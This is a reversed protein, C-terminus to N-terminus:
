WQFGHRTNYQAAQSIPQTYGWLRGGLEMHATVTAADFPVTAWFRLTHNTPIKWFVPANSGWPFRNETWNPIEWLGEGPINNAAPIIGKPGDVKGSSLRLKWSINQAFRANFPGPKIWDDPTGEIAYWQWCGRVIGIRGQPVYLRAIEYHSQGFAGNPVWNYVKADEFYFQGQTDRTPDSIRPEYARTPYRSVIVALPDVRPKRFEDLVSGFTMPRYPQAFGQRIASDLLDM